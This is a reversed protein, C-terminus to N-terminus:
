RKNYKRWGAAVALFALAGAMLSGGSARTVVVTDRYIDYNQSELSVLSLDADDLNDSFAVLEDTDADYIEILIDYDFSRFGSVLESDVIYSDGTTEGYVWFTDSVHIAEYADADGLYVVAYVPAEVYITDVDFEVLFRSYFSDGDFDDLFTIWSDYIWFDNYLSQSAVEDRTKNAFQSLKKNNLKTIKKAPQLDTTAMKETVKIIRQEAHTVPIWIGALLMLSWSLKKILHKM